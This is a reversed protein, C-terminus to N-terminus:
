SKSVKYKTIPIRVEIKLENPNDDHYKFYGKFDKLIKEVAELGKDPKGKSCSNQTFIFTSYKIDSEQLHVDKLTITVDSKEAYKFSNDLLEKCIKILLFPHIIVGVDSYTDDKLISFSSLKNKISQSYQRKDVYANFVDDDGLGDGGKLKEWVHCLSIYSNSKWLSYFSQTMSPTFYENQIEKLVKEIAGLHSKLDSNQKLIQDIKSLYNALSKEGGLYEPAFKNTMFLKNLSSLYSIVGDANQLLDQLETKAIEYQKRFKIDFMEDSIDHHINQAVISDYLNDIPIGLDSHSPKYGSAADYMNFLNYFPKVEESGVAMNDNVIIRNFKAILPYYKVTSNDEIEQWIEKVSKILPNQFYSSGGKNVYYVEAMKFAMFSYESSPNDSNNAIFDLLKLFNSKEFIEASRNFLFYSELISITTWQYHLQKMGEPKDLINNIFRIIKQKVDPLQNEITKVLHKEHLTVAIIAEIKEKFDKSGEKLDDFFYYYDTYFRYGDIKGLHDRVTFFSLVDFSGDELKPFYTPCNNEIDNVHHVVLQKLRDEIYNIASTTQFEKVEKYEELTRIEQCHECVKTSQSPPIHLNTGFYINVPALTNELISDRIPRPNSPSNLIKVKMERIRSFFERDFDELRGVLSIVIIKKLEFVCLADIMQIISDGTFSGMDIILAKKGQLRNNFSKQPIIFRWGKNTDFRQLPIINSYDVRFIDQINEVTLNEIGSFVPYFVFDDNKLTQIKPNKESKKHKALKKTRELYGLLEKKFREIKFNSGEEYNDLLEEFSNLQYAISKLHFDLDYKQEKNIIENYISKVLKVGVNGDSNTESFLQESKIFYPHHLSNQSFHGIAMSDLPIKELFDIAKKFAIKDEESHRSEITIRANLIPNIRVLKKKPHPNEKFKKIERKALSLFLDESFEKQADFYISKKHKTSDIKENPVRSDVVSLVCSVSAPKSNEDDKGISSISDNIDKILNGTSIVDNVILVKDGAVINKFQVEESFSYYSALRVLKPLENSYEVDNKNTYYEIETHKRLNQWIAKSIIQSPLTVSVIKNFPFKKSPFKELLEKVFLEAIFEVNAEALENDSKISDDTSTLEEFIAIYCEQYYGGATLYVENTLESLQTQKKIFGDLRDYSSNIILSSKM